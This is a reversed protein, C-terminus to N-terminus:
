SKRKRVKWLLHKKNPKVCKSLCYFLTSTVLIEHAEGFCLYCVVCFVALVTAYSIWSSLLLLTKCLKQILKNSSNAASDKIQEKCLIVYALSFFLLFLAMVYGFRIIHYGKVLASFACYNIVPGPVDGKYTFHEDDGDFAGIVIYKGRTPNAKDYLAAKGIHPISIDGIRIVATDGLLDMGLNHWIKQGEKSYMSDAAVEMPLFVCNKALHNGDMYFPGRKKIERGTIEKYMKLPLSTDPVSPNTVSKLLYPYKSFGVKFYSQKYDAIGAKPTLLDNNVLRKRQHNAIVINEMSHITAFLEADYETPGMEYDFFVDLLIYKYEVSDRLYQLLTLLKRRDTIACHGVISDSVRAPNPNIVKDYAVNVFLVSDLYGYEEHRNFKQRIEVKRLLNKEGGLPIPLNAIFYSVVLLLVSFVASFLLKRKRKAILATFTTM